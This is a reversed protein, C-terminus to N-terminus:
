VLHLLCDRRSRFWEAGVSQFVVDLIKANLGGFSRGKHGCDTAWKGM